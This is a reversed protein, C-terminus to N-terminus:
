GENILFRLFSRFASSVKIYVCTSFMSSHQKSKIKNSTCTQDLTQKKSCLCSEANKIAHRCPFKCPDIITECTVNKGELCIMHM